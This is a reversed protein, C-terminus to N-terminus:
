AKPVSVLRNSGCNECTAKGMHAETSEFEADCKRCRYTYTRQEGGLLASKITDFVPM